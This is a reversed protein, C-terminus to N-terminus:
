GECKTILGFCHSWHAVVLNRKQFARVPEALLSLTLWSSAALFQAWPEAVGPGGYEPGVTHVWSSRDERVFRAVLGQGLHGTFAAELPAHTTDLAESTGLVRLVIAIGSVPLHEPDLYRMFHWSHASALQAPPSSLLLPGLHKGLYEEQASVRSVPDRPGPEAVQIPWSDCYLDNV